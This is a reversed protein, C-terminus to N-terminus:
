TFSGKNTWERPLQAVGTPEAAVTPHPFCPPNARPSFCRHTQEERWKSQTFLVMWNEYLPLVFPFFFRNGDLPPLQFLQQACSCGSSLLSQELILMEMTTNEGETGPSCVVRKPFWKSSLTFLNRRRWFWGSAPSTKTLTTALESLVTSTLGPIFDLNTRNIIVFAIRKIEKIKFGGQPATM